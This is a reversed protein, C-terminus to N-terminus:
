WRPWTSTPGRRSGSRPSRPPASERGRPAARAGTAAARRPTSAATARGRRASRRVARRPACRRGRRRAGTEVQLSAAGSARATGRPRGRPAAVPRTRRDLDVRRQQACELDLLLAVLEDVRRRVQRLPQPRRGLPHARRIAVEHRGVPRRRQELVHEALRRDSAPRRSASRRRRRVASRAGDLQFAVDPDDEGAEAARAVRREIRGDSSRAAPM